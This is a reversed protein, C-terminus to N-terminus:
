NVAVVERLRRRARYLVVSLHGATIGLEECVEDTDCEMCDRLVFARAQQVPLAKLCADVHILMQKEHMCAAPDRWEICAHGPAAAEGDPADEDPQFFGGSEKGHRRVQDVLKHKLVGMLWTSLQSRGEFAQPRELAALITESVADEAWTKNHLRRQAARLLQPRLAAIQQIVTDNCSM